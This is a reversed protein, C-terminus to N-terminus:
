CDRNRCTKRTVRVHEEDERPRCEDSVRCDADDDCTQGVCDTQAKGDIVWGTFECYSGAPCDDDSTCVPDFWDESSVCALLVAVLFVIPLGSRLLALADRM